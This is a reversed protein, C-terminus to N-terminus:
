GFVFTPVSFNRVGARVAQCTESIQRVRPQLATVIIPRTPCLLLTALKAMLLGTAMALLMALGMAVELVITM